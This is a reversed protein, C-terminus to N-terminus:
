RRLNSVAYLPVDIQAKEKNYEILASRILSEVRDAETVLRYQDIVNNQSDLTLHSRVM